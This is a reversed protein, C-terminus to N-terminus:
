KNNSETVDEKANEVTEVTQTTEAQLLKKQPQVTEEKVTEETPQVAEKGNECNGVTQTTEKAQKLNM